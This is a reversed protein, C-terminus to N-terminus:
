IKEFGSDPQDLVGDMEENVVNVDVKFFQYDKYLFLTKCKEWESKRETYGGSFALFYSDKPAIYKERIIIQSPFHLGQFIKGFEVRISLSLQAGMQKARQLFKRYGLLSQPNGELRLIAYNKMDIWVKGYVPLVRNQSSVDHTSGTAVKPHANKKPLFVKNKDTTVTKKLKNEPLVEILAAKRKGLSDFKIFRYRYYPQRERSFLSNAALAARKSFYNIEKQTKKKKFPDRKEKIKDKVKLLRYLFVRKTKSRASTSFAGICKGKLKKRHYRNIETLSVTSQKRNKVDSLKVRPIRFEVVKEKCVFHFVSEKLKECYNAAGALINKLERDSITARNEEQGFAPSLLILLMLIVYSYKM